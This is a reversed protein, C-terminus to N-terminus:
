LVAFLCKFQDCPEFRTSLFLTRVQNEESMLRGLLWVAKWTSARSRFEVRQAFTATM